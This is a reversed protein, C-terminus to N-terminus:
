RGTGNLGAFSAAHPPQSCCPGGSSAHAALLSHMKCSRRPEVCLCGCHLGQVHGCVQPWSMSGSRNFAITVAASAPSPTFQARADSKQGKQVDEMCDFAQDGSNRRNRSKQPKRKLTRKMDKGTVVLSNEVYSHTQVVM